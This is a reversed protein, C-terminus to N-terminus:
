PPARAGGLKRGELPAHEIGVTLGERVRTEPHLLLASVLREAVRQHAVGLAAKADMRLGAARADAELDRVFGMSERGRGELTEAGPGLADLDAEESGARNLDL